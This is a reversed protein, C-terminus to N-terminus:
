HKARVVYWLTVQFLHVPKKEGAM